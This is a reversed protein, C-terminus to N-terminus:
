PQSYHGSSNGSEPPPLPSDFTPADGLLMALEEATLLEHTGGTFLEPHERLEDSSESGRQHNGPQPLAVPSDDPTSAPAPAAMPAPKPAASPMVVPRLQGAANGLSESPGDAPGETPDVLRLRPRAGAMAGYSARRMAQEVADAPRAQRTHNAAPAAPTTPSATWAALEQATVARLQPKAHEDFYWLASRPAYRRVASALEVVGELREPQVLVLVVARKPGTASAGVVRCAHALVSFVDTCTQISAGHKRLSRVLEQPPATSAAHCLM